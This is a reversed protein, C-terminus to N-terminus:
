RWGHRGRRGHGRVVLFAALFLFVPPYGHVIAGVTSVVLFLALLLFVPHYPAQRRVQRRPREPGELVAVSSGPLDAFLPALEAGTKAAYVASLREELEVRDLRGAAYHGSLSEAAADRELDGIRVNAM